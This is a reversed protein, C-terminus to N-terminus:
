PTVSYVSWCTPTLSRSRPYYMQGYILKTSEFYLAQYEGQATKRSSDLVWPGEGDFTATAYVVAAQASVTINQQTRLDDRLALLVDCAKQKWQELRIIVEPESQDDYKAFERPVRLEKVHQLAASAQDEM